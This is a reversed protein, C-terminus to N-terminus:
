LETPCFESMSRVSTSDFHQKATNVKPLELPFDKEKSKGAELIQRYEKAWPIGVETKLGAIAPWIMRM